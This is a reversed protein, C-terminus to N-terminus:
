DLLRKVSARVDAIVKEQDVTLFMGNQYLTKGDIMTLVVDGAQAAYTLMPLIDTFPIMHPREFSVAVIDARKGVSLEGTDFRGQAEAGSKTAMDIVEAPAVTTADRHYGKHIISALHMEEFMNLNNNSAAGDTGLVVRVGKKLAKGIPAFGSGLKMNSTPNHVLSVGKDAMIDLDADECFVCHAALVPSGFTGLDEFWAAPTKGHRQKCEEHERLTESLHLHIRGGERKCLDSFYAVTDPTSLYESHIGFDVLIRGDAYGDYAKYFAEADRIIACDEGKMGPDLCTLPLCLNAKMGVKAIAEATIDPQFYMDTFSTIGSALMEMAALKTGAEIDHNTLREEIPMIHNFLWDQLPLDSGIGRLLVMPAHCHCNVLGPILLCGQMDKVSDYMHEPATQGIYDINAGDVGVYGNHILQGERPSGALIDCNM